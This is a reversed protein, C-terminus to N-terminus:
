RADTAAPKRSAAAPDPGPATAYGSCAACRAGGDGRDRSEAADGHAARYQWWGWLLAGVIAAHILVSLM